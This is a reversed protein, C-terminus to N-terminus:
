FCLSYSWMAFNRSKGKTELDQLYSEEPTHKQAGGYEDYLVEMTRFCQSCACTWHYRQPAKITFAGKGTVRRRRTRVEEDQQKVQQNLM